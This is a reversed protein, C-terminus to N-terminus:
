NACDQSATFSALGSDSFEMKKREKKGESGCGDNTIQRLFNEACGAILVKVLIVQLVKCSLVPLTILLAM